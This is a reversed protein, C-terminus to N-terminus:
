WRKPSLSRVRRAGAFALGPASWNGVAVIGDRQHQRKGLWIIMSTPRSRPSGSRNRATTRRASINASPM